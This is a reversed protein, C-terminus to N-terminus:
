HFDCFLFFHHRGIFTDEKVNVPTRRCATCMHCVYQDVCKVHLFQCLKFQSTVKIIHYMDFLM